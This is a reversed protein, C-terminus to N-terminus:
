METCEAHNLLATRLTKFDRCILSLPDLKKPCGNNPGRKEIEIKFSKRVSIRRGENSKLANHM